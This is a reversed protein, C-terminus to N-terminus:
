KLPSLLAAGTKSTQFFSEEEFESWFAKFDKNCEYFISFSLFSLSEFSDVRFFHETNNQIQIMSNKNNDHICM